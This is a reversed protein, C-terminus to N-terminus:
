PHHSSPTRKRLPRSSHSPVSGKRPIASSTSKSKSKSSTSPTGTPYSVGRSSKSSSPIGTSRATGSAHTTPSSSSTSSTGGYGGFSSGTNFPPPTSTVNSTPIQTAANSGWPAQVLTLTGASEAGLLQLAQSPSVALEVAAPLTTSSGNVASSSSSPAAAYSVLGASNSEAAVTVDSAITEGVPIGITSPNNSGAVMMVDVVDGPVVLGSTTLTVPIWFGVQQPGLGNREPIKAVMGRTIPEGAILGHLATLGVVASASPYGNTLGSLPRLSVDHATITSGTPITTTAFLVNTVKGRAAKAAEVNILIIGVGMLIAIWALTKPNKGGTRQPARAKPPAWANASSKRFLPM